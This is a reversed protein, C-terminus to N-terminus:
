VVYDGVLVVDVFVWGCWGGFGGCFVVMVLWWENMWMVIM